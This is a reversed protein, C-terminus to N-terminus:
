RSQNCVIMVRKNDNQIFDIKNIQDAPVNVCRILANLVESNGDRNVATKDSTLFEPLKRLSPLLFSDSDSKSNSRNLNHGIIQSNRKSYNTVSSEISNMLKNDQGNYPSRLQQKPSSLIQANTNTNILVQAPHTPQLNNNSHGSLNSLTPGIGFKSMTKLIGKHNFM